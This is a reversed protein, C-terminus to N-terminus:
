EIDEFSEIAEWFYFTQWSLGDLNGGWLLSPHNLVGSIQLFVQYKFSTLIEPEPPIHEVSELSGETNCSHCQPSPEPKSQWISLEFLVGLVALGDPYQIADDFSKYKSNYTVFQLEM